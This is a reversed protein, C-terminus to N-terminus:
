LTKSNYGFSIKGKRTVGNRIIPTKTNNSIDTNCSGYEKALIKATPGKAMEGNQPNAVKKYQNGREGGRRKKENTYRKGRM